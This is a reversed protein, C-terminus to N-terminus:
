MNATIIVTIVQTDRGQGWWSPSKGAETELLAPGQGQTHQDTVRPLTNVEAEEAACQPFHHSAWRTYSYLHLHKRLLMPKQLSCCPAFIPKEGECLGLWQRDESNPTRGLNERSIDCHIEGSAAPAEAGPCTRGPACVWTGGRASVLAGYLSPPEPSYPLYGPYSQAAAAAAYPAGYIGLATGLEPRASGLLRSDYPALCLAAAAPTSGSAM